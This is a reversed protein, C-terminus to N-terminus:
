GEGIKNGLSRWASNSNEQQSSGLSMGDNGFLVPTPRCASLILKLDEESMEYETRPYISM